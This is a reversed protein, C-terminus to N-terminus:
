TCQCNGHSVSHMLCCLKYQIRWRVPLWHLQLLSPTVHERAGLEFVLRAALFTSTTRAHVAALRSTCLQLLRDTVHGDGLHPTRYRSKEISEGASRVYAGYAYAGYGSDSLWWFNTVWNNRRATPGNMVGLKLSIPQNSKCYNACLCVSLCVSHCVSQGSSMVYGRRPPHLSLRYNIDQEDTIANWSINGLYTRQSYAM